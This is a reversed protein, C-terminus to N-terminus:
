LKIRVEQDKSKLLNQGIQRIGGDRYAFQLM